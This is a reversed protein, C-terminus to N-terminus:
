AKGKGIFDENEVIPTGVVRYFDGRLQSTQDLLTGLGPHPAVLTGGSCFQPLAPRLEGLVTPEQDAVPILNEVAIRSWQAIRPFEVGPGEHEAIHPTRRVVTSISKPLCMQM